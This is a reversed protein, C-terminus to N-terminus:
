CSIELRVSWGENSNTMQKRDTYKCKEDLVRACIWKGISKNTAVWLDFFQIRIFLIYVRLKPMFTVISRLTSMVSVICNIKKKLCVFHVITM